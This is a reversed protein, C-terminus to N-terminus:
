KIVKKRIYLVKFGWRWALYWFLIALLGTIWGVFYFIWGALLIRPLNGFLHYADDFTNIGTKRNIWTDKPSSDTVWKSYMWKYRMTYTTSRSWIHAIERLLYCLAAVPFWVLLFLMEMKFYKVL